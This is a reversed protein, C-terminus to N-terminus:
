SIRFIFQYRVLVYPLSKNAQIGAIWSRALALSVFGITDDHELGQLIGKTFRRTFSITVKNM